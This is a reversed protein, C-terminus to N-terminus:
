FLYRRLMWVVALGLVRRDEWRRLKEAEEEAEALM